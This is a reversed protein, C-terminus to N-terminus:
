NANVPVSAFQDPRTQIVTAAIKASTSAKLVGLFNSLDVPNDWDIENIFLARQGDAPIALESSALLIGEASFLQLVITSPQDELNMIAIGTNVRLGVIFEIPASFGNDLPQSSGVGALGVSGGFM